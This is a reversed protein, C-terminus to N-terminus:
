KSKKTPPVPVESLLKKFCSIFIDLKNAWPYPDIRYKQYTINEIEVFSQEGEEGADIEIGYDIGFANDYFCFVMGDKVRHEKKEPLLSVPSCIVIAISCAEFGEIRAPYSYETELHDLIQKFLKEADFDEDLVSRVM